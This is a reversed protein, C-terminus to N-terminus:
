CAHMGTEALVLATDEVLRGGRQAFLQPSQSHSVAAEEGM